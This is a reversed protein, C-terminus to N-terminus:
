NDEPEYDDEEADNAEVRICDENDFDDHSPTVGREDEDSLESMDQRNERTVPVAQSLSDLTNRPPQTRPTEVDSTPAATTTSKGNRRRTAVKRRKPANPLPTRTKQPPDIEAEDTGPEEMTELTPKRLLNRQAAEKREKRQEEIPLKQIWDWDLEYHTDGEEEAYGPPLQRKKTKKGAAKTTKARSPRLLTPTNVVMNSFKGSAIARSIALRESATMPRVPKPESRPKHFMHDRFGNAGRTIANVKTKAEWELEVLVPFHIKDDSVRLVCDQCFQINCCRCRQMVKGDEEKDQAEVKQNCIDCKTTRVVVQKFETHRSPAPSIWVGTNPLSDFDPIYRRQSVISRKFNTTATTDSKSHVESSSSSGSFSEGDDDEDESHNSEDFSEEGVSDERTPLSTRRRSVPTKQAKSELNKDGKLKSPPM